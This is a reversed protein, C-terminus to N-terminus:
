GNACCRCRRRRASGSRCARPTSSRNGDTARAGVMRPIKLGPTSWRSRCERVEPAIRRHNERAARKEGVNARCRETRQQQRQEGARCSAGARGFRGVHLAIDPPGAVGRQRELPLHEPLAPATRREKDGALQIEPGIRPRREVIRRRHCGRPGSGRRQLAGADHWRAPRLTPLVCIRRRKRHPRKRAGRGTDGRIRGRAVADGGGAGRGRHRGIRGEHGPAVEDGAMRLVPVGREVAARHRGLRGIVARPAALPAMDAWERRECRGIARRAPAEAGVAVQEGVLPPPGGPQTAAVPHHQGIEGVALRLPRRVEVVEIRRDHASEGLGGAQRHRLAADGRLRLPDDRVRQRGPVVIQRLAVPAEERAERRLEAVRGPPLRQDDAGARDRRREAAPGAGVLPDQDLM